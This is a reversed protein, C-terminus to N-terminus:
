LRMGKWILAETSPAVVSSPSYIAGRGVDAGGWGGAAPANL